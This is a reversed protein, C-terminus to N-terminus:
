RKELVRHITNETANITDAVRLEVKTFIIWTSLEPLSAM